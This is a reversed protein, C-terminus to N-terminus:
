VSVSEKSEKKEPSAFKAADAPSIQMEKTTKKLANLEKTLMRNAFNSRTIRQDSATEVESM